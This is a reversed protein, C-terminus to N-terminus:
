YSGITQFLECKWGTASFWSRSRRHSNGGSKSRSFASLQPLSTGFAVTIALSILTMIGPKHDALERWAVSPQQATQVVVAFWVETAMLKDIM